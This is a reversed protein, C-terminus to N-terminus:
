EHDQSNIFKLFEKVNKEIRPNYNFRSGMFERLSTAPWCYALLLMDMPIPFYFTPASPYKCNFGGTGDPVSKKIRVPLEFYNKFRAPSGSESIAMPYTFEYCCDQSVVTNMDEDIFIARCDIVYSDFQGLTGTAMYRALLEQIKPENIPRVMATDATLKKM